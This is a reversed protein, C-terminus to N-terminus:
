EQSVYKFYWGQYAKGSKECRYITSKSAGTIEMAKEKNVIYSEGKDNHIQTTKSVGSSHNPEAIYHNCLGLENGIKIHNLITRKSYPLEKSIKYVSYDKHKNAFDCIEKTIPNLTLDLEEVEYAEIQLLNFLGSEKVNNYIERFDSTSCDIIFYSSVGNLKANEIKKKDNVQEEELTRASKRNTQIYHQVGHMEIICNYEPIFFDYKRKDFTWSPQYEHTFTISAKSLIAYMLREGISLKGMCECGISHTKYLNSIIYNEKIKSCNPCKMNARLNSQPAFRTADEKDEFYPIMWQVEKIESIPRFTHQNKYEMM